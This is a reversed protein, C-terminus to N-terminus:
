RSGPPTVSGGDLRCAMKEALARTVYRGGSLVQRVANALEEPASHKPLYGMAGFALASFAYMEEAYTSLVLVPPSPRRRRLERLVDVGCRDPLALDLVVLDWLELASRELAERANRAEGFVTEGFAERLIKQLGARIAEHDDVLLIRLMFYEDKL